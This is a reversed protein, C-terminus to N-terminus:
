QFTEVELIEYVPKFGVKARYLRAQAPKAACRIRSCGHTLALERLAQFFREFHANPAVLDTVFLVRMNPLQDIRVVGWGIAEQEDDMRILTREGRSLILKLQDGTIEGGSTDCALSLCDAGQRFAMDIHTAPIPTLQM